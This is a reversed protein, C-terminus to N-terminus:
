AASVSALQQDLLVLRQGLVPNIASSGCCHRPLQYEAIPCACVNVMKPDSWMQNELLGGNYRNLPNRRYVKM